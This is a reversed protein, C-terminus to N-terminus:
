MGLMGQIVQTSPLRSKLTKEVILIPYLLSPWREDELPVPLRERFVLFSFIDAVESISINLWQKMNQHIELRVLGVYDPLDGLMGKSHLRIYWSLRPKMRVNRNYDDHDESFQFVSCRQGEQMHLVKAIQNPGLFRTRLTKSVAIVHGFVIQSKERQVALDVTTGDLVIWENDEPLEGLKELVACEVVQRLRGVRNKARRRQMAIDFLGIGELHLRQKIKDESLYPYRKKFITEEGKEPRTTDIIILSDSSYLIDEISPREKAISALEKLASSDGKIGTNIMGEFPGLIAVKQVIGEEMLWLRKNERFLAAVGVLAVHIIGIAGNKLLIEKGPVTRQIGDVFAIIRHDPVKSIFRDKWNIIAFNKEESEVVNVSSGGEQKLKEIDEVLKVSTEYVPSYSMFDLIDVEEESADTRIARGPVHRFINMLRKYVKNLDNM